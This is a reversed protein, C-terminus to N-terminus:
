ESWTSCHCYTNSVSILIEGFEKIQMEIEDKRAMLSLVESKKSEHPVVM